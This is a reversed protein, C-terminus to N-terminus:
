ERVFDDPEKLQKKKENWTSNRSDHTFEKSMFRYPIAVLAFCTYYFLFLIVFSVVNGFAEAGRTFLRWWARVHKMFFKLFSHLHFAGLSLEPCLSACPWIYRTRFHSSDDVLAQEAVFVRIIELPDRPAGAGYSDM